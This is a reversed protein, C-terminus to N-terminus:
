GGQWRDEGFLEVAREYVEENSMKNVAEGKQGGAMSLTGQLAQCNRHHHHTSSSLLLWSLRKVPM